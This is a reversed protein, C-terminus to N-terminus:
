AAVAEAAFRKARAADAGAKARRKVQEATATDNAARATREVLYARVDALRWRSCRPGFRLPQPARGGRVEAHWYSPSCSAAACIGKVDVLAADALAEPVLSM